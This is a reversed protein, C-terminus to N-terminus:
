VVGETVNNGTKIDGVMQISIVSLYILCRVRPVKIGTIDRVQTKSTNVLPHITIYQFEICLFCFEDGFSDNKSKISCAM